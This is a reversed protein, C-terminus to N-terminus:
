GTSNKNKIIEKRARMLSGNETKGKSSGQDSGRLSESQRETAASSELVPVYVESQSSTAPHRSGDENM